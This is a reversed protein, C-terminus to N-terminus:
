LDNKNEKTVKRVQSSYGGIVVFLLAAISFCAIGIIQSLQSTNVINSIGLVISGLALVNFFRMISQYHRIKTEYDTITEFPGQSSKKRIVMWNSNNIVIEIGSKKQLDKQKQIEQEKKDAVYQYRYLYEGPIGQKFTYKGISFDTLEYGQQAMENIWEEEKEYNFFVKNKTIIQNNNM